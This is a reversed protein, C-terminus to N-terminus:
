KVLAKVIAKYDDTAIWDAGAKAAAHWRIKVTNGDHFRYPSNIPGRPGNLCYFRARFGQKHVHDLLADLRASEEPTWVGALPPGGREINAWHFTLFRHYATAREPAYAQVDDRYSTGGFVVDRFARYTGGPPVLEDYRDKAVDSGTFCVTLRRPTLPSEAAKPASSFWDAHEDLFLKFARVADPHDTKWDITLITPARDPRPHKWHAELAPTLYADLTAYEVGPMPAPDHGVILRRGTEDWGLDIEINDIGLSLAEVLRDNRAGESPYCNHASIPLPDAAQTTATATAALWALSLRLSLRFAPAFVKEVGITM